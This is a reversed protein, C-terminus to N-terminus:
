TIYAGGEMNPNDTATLTSPDSAFAEPYTFGISGFQTWQNTFALSEVGCPRVYVEDILEAWSSGSAAEAVAGAVQWQAGGYRFETDPAVVDADDDPATFVQEACQQLTGLPVFQCLYPVYAPTPALGPLGSSNSVLQIPTIDPHAAGWDVVDAVPADVDLLGADDLHMLVGAVIMKSSSAILSVREADFEGWYDEYVVGDDRDVVVFGAGNLGYDDVFAQVIPSVASFDRAVGPDTGPSITSGTATTSTSTTTGTSDTTSITTSAATTPTTPPTSSGPTARPNTTGARDDSGACAAVALCAITILAFVRRSDTM